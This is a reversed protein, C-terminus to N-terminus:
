LEENIDGEDFYETYNKYQINIIDCNLINTLKKASRTKLAAAVFNGINFAEQQDYCNWVPIDKNGISVEVIYGVLPLYFTNVKWGGGDYKLMTKKQFMEEWTQDIIEEWTEDFINEIMKEFEKQEDNHNNDENKFFLPFESKDGM